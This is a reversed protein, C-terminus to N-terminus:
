QSQLSSRKSIEEAAPTSDMSLQLRHTLGLSHGRQQSVDEQDTGPVPQHGKKIFSEAMKQELQLSPQEACIRGRM